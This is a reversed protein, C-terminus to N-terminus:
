LDWLVLAFLVLLKEVPASAGAQGEGVTMAIWRPETCLFCAIIGMKWNRRGLPKVIDKGM